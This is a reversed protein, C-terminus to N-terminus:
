QFIRIKRLQIIQVNRVTVLTIVTQKILAFNSLDNIIVYFFIKQNCNLYIEENIMM